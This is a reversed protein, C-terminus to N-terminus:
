HASSHSSAVGGKWVEAQMFAGEYKSRKCVKRWVENVGHGSDTDPSHKRYAICTADSLRVPLPARVFGVIRGREYRTNRIGAHECRIKESIGQMGAPRNPHFMGKHRVQAFTEKAGCAM